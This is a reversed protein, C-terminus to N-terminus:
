IRNWPQRLYFVTQQGDMTTLNSPLEFITSWNLILELLTVFRLNKEWAIGIQRWAHAVHELNGDLILVITEIDSNPIRFRSKPMIPIRGIYIVQDQSAHSLEGGGFVTLTLKTTLYSLKNFWPRTRISNILIQGELLFRIQIRTGFWDDLFFGIWGEFCFM